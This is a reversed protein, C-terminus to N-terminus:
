AIGSGVSGLLFNKVLKPFFGMLDSTVSEVATIYAALIFTPVVKTASSTSSFSSSGRLRTSCYLYHMGLALLLSMIWGSNTIISAATEDSINIIGKDVIVNSSPISVLTYRGLIARSLFKGISSSSLSSLLSKDEVIETSSSSRLVTVIKAVLVHFVEHLIGFLIYAALFIVQHHSSRRKKDNTSPGGGGNTVISSSISSNLKM